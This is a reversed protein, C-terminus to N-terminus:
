SNGAMKMEKKHHFRHCSRQNKLQGLKSGDYFVPMWNSGVPVGTGWKPKLRNNDLWLGMKKQMSMAQLWSWLCSSTSEKKNYPQTQLRKLHRSAFANMTTNSWWRILELNLEVVLCWHCWKQNANNHQSCVSVTSEIISNHKSWTENQKVWANKKTIEEYHIIVSNTTFLLRRFSTRLVVSNEFLYKTICELQLESSM